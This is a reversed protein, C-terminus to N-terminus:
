RPERARKEIVNRQRNLRGAVAASAINTSAVPEASPHYRVWSGDSFRLLVDLRPKDGQNTDAEEHYFTPEACILMKSAAPSLKAMTQWDLALPLSPSNEPVAWTNQLYDIQKCQANLQRFVDKVKM